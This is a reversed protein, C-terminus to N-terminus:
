MFRMKICNIKRGIKDADFKNGIKIIIPNTFPWFTFPIAVNVACAVRIINKKTAKAFVKRMVGINFLGKIFRKKHERQLIGLAHSGWADRLEIFDNTKTRKKM